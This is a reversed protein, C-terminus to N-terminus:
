GAAREGVILWAHDGAVAGDAVTAAAYMFIREGRASTSVPAV